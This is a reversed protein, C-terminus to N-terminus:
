LVSGLVFLVAVVTKVFPCIKMPIISTKFGTFMSLVALVILMAASIISITIVVTNGAGYIILPIIVVLGTFCLTLGEAIWDMTIIFKNDKSIDGFGGVIARTPVLHAIGWLIIVISGVYLFVANPM